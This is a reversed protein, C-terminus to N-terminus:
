CREVNKNGFRNEIAGKYQLLAAAKAPTPALIAAGSPVTWVDAIFTRDPILQQIKQPLEFPSAKRAEHDPGLRIIVRRDEKSQGSPPGARTMQKKLSFNQGNELAGAMEAWSPKSVKSNSSTINQM